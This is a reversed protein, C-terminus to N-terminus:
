KIVNPTIIAYGGFLERRKGDVGMEIITYVFNTVQPITLYNLAMFDLSWYITGPSLKQDAVVFKFNALVVTSSYDRKLEASYSLGSLDRLTGDQNEVIITREFESGQKINVNLTSM